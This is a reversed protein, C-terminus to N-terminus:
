LAGAGVTCAAQVRHRERTDAGLQLRPHATGARRRRQREPYLGHRYSRTSRAAGPLRPDTRAAIGSASARGDPTQRATGAVGTRALGDAGARYASRRRGSETDAGPPSRAAGRPSTIEIRGALVDGPEPHPASSNLNG